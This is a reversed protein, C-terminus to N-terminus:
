KRYSGLLSRVEDRTLNRFKGVPLNGLKLSSMRTRVLRVVSFGLKTFLRRVIHKRGEHIILVVRNGKVRYNVVNVPCDDINVRKLRKDFPRDLTAEYEKEVGYRPHILRNALEGDNTFILLGESNKDLRGVPFVKEKVSILGMVTKMGHKESVSTVFGKPKNLMLYVKKELKVSKGDVSIRDKDPDASEGISAVKGNVEVRGQVILDECKRRSAIGAQALIKQLRHKM